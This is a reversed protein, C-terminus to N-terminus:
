ATQKYVLLLLSLLKREMSHVHECPGMFISLYYTVYWIEGRKTVEWQCDGGSLFYGSIELKYYFSYDRQFQGEGYVVTRTKDKNRCYGAKNLM